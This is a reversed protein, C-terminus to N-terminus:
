RAWRPGGIKARAAILQSEVRWSMASRDVRIHRQRAMDVFSASKRAM